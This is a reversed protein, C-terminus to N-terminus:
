VGGVVGDSVVLNSDPTTDHRDASWQEHPGGPRGTMLMTQGDKSNILTLLNREGPM